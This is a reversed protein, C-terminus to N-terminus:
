AAYSYGRRRGLSEIHKYRTWLDSNILWKYGGGVPKKRIDEIYLYNDPLEKIVRTELVKQTAYLSSLNEKSITEYMHLGLTTAVDMLHMCMQKGIGRGRLDADVLKGLYSKGIFYSRLFYYGVCKEGSMVGYALYSKNRLLRSVTDADFQHPKFYRFSDEPQRGFFAVLAPVDGANLRRYIYAGHQEENAITNLRSGYRLVFLWENVKEVSGWVFPMKAQITHAIGYVNLRM